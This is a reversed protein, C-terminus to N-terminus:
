LLLGRYLENNKLLFPCISILILKLSSYLAFKESISYATFSQLFNTSSILLFLNDFSTLCALILGGSISTFLLLIIKFSLVLITNIFIRIGIFLVIGILKLFNNSNERLKGNKKASGM